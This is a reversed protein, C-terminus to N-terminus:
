ASSGSWSREPWSLRPDQEAVVLIGHQRWGARKEAEADIRKPQHHGLHSRLERMTWCRRWVRGCLGRHGHHQGPATPRAGGARGEPRDPLHHGTRPTVKIGLVQSWRTATREFISGPAGYTGRRHRIVASAQELLHDANM